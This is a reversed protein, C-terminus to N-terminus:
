FGSDDLRVQPLIILAEGFTVLLAAQKIGCHLCPAPPTQWEHILLLLVPYFTCVSHHPGSDLSLSISYFRFHPGWVFVPAAFHPWEEIQGKQLFSARKYRYLLTGSLPSCYHVSPPHPSSTSTQGAPREEQGFALGVDGELFESLGCLLWRLGSVLLPGWGAEGCLGRGAPSSGSSLLTHQSGKLWMLYFQSIADKSVHCGCM